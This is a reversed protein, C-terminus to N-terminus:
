GKIKIYALLGTWAMGLATTAGSFVNRIKDVRRDTLIVQKGVDSIRVHLLKDAAELEALRRAHEERTLEVTALTKALVDRDKDEFAM